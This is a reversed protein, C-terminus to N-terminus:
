LKNPSAILMSMRNLALQNRLPGVSPLALPVAVLEARAIHAFRITPTVASENPVATGLSNSRDHVEVDPLEDGAEYEQQEARSVDTQGRLHIALGGAVPRDHDAIRQLMRHELEPNILGEVFFIPADVPAQITLTFGSIVAVFRNHQNRARQPRERLCVTPIGIGVILLHRRLTQFEKAVFHPISLVAAVIEHDSTFALNNIRIFLEIGHRIYHL